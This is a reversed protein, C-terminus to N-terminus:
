AQRLALMPRKQADLLNHTLLWDLADGADQEFWARSSGLRFSYGWNDMDSFMRERGLSDIEDALLIQLGELLLHALLAEKSDFYLYIAGKSLEAASAVDDVTARHIGKSFFVRRAALLIERQRRAKERNRREVTSLGDLMGSLIAEMREIPVSRWHAKPAMAKRGAELHSLHDEQILIHGNTAWRRGRWFYFRYRYRCRLGYARM